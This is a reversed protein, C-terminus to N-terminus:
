DVTDLIQTEQTRGQTELVSPTGVLDVPLFVKNMIVDGPWDESRQGPTLMQLKDMLQRQVSIKSGRVTTMSADGSGIGSSSDRNISTSTEGISVTKPRMSGSAAYNAAARTQRTSPPRMLRASSTPPEGRPDLSSKESHSVTTTTSTEMASHGYHSTSTTSTIAPTNANTSSAVSFALAAAKHSQHEMEQLLELLQSNVQM